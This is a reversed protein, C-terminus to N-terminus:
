DCIMAMSQSLSPPPTTTTTTSSTQNTELICPTTTQPRIYKWLREQLIARVSWAAHTCIGQGALLFVYVRPSCVQSSIGMGSTRLSTPFVEAGYVYLVLFAAAIRM